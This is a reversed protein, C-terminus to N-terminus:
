WVGTSILRDIEQLARRLSPAAAAATDPRWAERCFRSVFATHEPGPGRTGPPPVMGVRVARRRSSRCLQVLADKPRDLDEPDRPVASRPVSFYKAVAEADALLWAELTRVALRLCLAPSQPVRLLTRRLTVPCGDADHDADRLALWPGHRAAQNYNVLRADFRQKGRTIIVRNPDVALSRTALVCGVAVRDIQGEVVVGIPQATM